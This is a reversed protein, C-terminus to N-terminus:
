EEITKTAEKEEKDLQKEEAKIERKKLNSKLEKKPDSNPINYM